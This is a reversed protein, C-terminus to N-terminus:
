YYPQVPPMMENFNRRYRQILEQRSMRQRRDEILGRKSQDLRDEFSSNQSGMYSPQAIGQEPFSPHILDDPM